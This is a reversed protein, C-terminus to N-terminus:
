SRAAQIIGHVIDFQVQVNEESNTRNGSKVREYYTYTKDGSYELQQVKTMDEETTIFSPEGLQAVLQGSTKGVWEQASNMGILPVFEQSPIHRFTTADHGNFNGKAHMPMSFAFIGSM